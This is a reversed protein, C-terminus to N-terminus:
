LKRVTQPKKFPGTNVIGHLFWLISALQAASVQATDRVAASRSQTARAHSSSPRPTQSLILWVRGTLDVHWRSRCKGVPLLVRPGGHSLGGQKYSRCAMQVVEAVLSFQTGAAKAPLENGCFCQDGDEVGAYRDIDSSPTHAAGCVCLDDDTHPPLIRPSVQVPRFPQMGGHLHRAQVLEPLRRM